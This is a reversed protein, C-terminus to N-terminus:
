FVKCVGRCWEVINGVKTGHEPIIKDLQVLKFLPLTRQFRTSLVVERPIRRRDDGEHNTAGVISGSRSAELDNSSMGIGGVEANLGARLLGAGTVDGLQIDLAVPSAQPVRPEIAVQRDGTPNDDLLRVSGELLLEHVELLGYAANRGETNVELCPILPGSELNVLLIVKLRDKGLKDLVSELHGRLLLLLGLRRPLLAVVWNKEGHDRGFEVDLGGRDSVKLEGEIVGLGSAKATSVVLEKVGGAEVVLAGAEGGDGGKGLIGLGVVNSLVLIDGHNTKEVVLLNPGSALAPRARRDKPLSDPPRARGEVITCAALVEKLDGQPPRKHERDVHGVGDVGVVSVLVLLHPPAFVALTALQRIRRAFRIVLPTPALRAYENGGLAIRYSLSCLTILSVFQLLQRSLVINM